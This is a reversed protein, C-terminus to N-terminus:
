AAGPGGRRLLETLALVVLGPAEPVQAGSGWKSVTSEHVGTERAIARNSWGAQRLEQIRDQVEETATVMDTLIGPRLSVRRPPSALFPEVIEASQGMLSKCNTHRVAM